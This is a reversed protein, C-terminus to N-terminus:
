TSAIIENYEAETIEIEGGGVCQIFYKTEGEILRTEAIAIMVTNYYKTGLKIFKM